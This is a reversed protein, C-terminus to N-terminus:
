APLRYPTRSKEMAFLLRVLKKAAHFPSRQLTERRGTEQHSVRCLSSELSLCIQRTTFLTGCTDPVASKWIPIAIGSNDPSTRLPHCGPTHWYSTQLNLVPLTTWKLWFWLPWASASAQSPLSPLTPSMSCPSFTNRLRWLRPLERILRLTSKAPMYSGIFTKRGGLNEASYGAQLPRQFRNGPADLTKDFSDQRDPCYRSLSGTLCLRFSPAPISRTNGTRSILYLSAPGRFVSSKLKARKKVKDFRYRTLSKLKENYYATDTYPKLGADSLLRAAITRVDVRDIKM